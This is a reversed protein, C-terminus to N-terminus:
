SAEAALEQEVVELSHTYRQLSIPLGLQHALECAASLAAQRVRLPAVVARRLAAARYASLADLPKDLREFCRGRLLFATPSISDVQCCPEVEQLAETYLELDYLAEAIVLRYSLKEPDRDLRARYVDLRRNAWDTEARRLERQVEGTQLRTALEKIEALQQRARALIAEEYQWLIEPDGKRLQLAEALVRKADLPRGEDRYITALELYLDVEVAHERIQKELSQRRLQSGPPPTAQPDNSDNM